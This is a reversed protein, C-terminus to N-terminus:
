PGQSATVGNDGSAPPLRPAPPSPQGRTRLAAGHPRPYPRQQAAGPRSRSRPRPRPRPRYRPEGQGGLLRRQGTPRQRLEDREEQRLEGNAGGAALLLELDQAQHGFAGEPGDQFHQVAPPLLDAGDLDHGFHLHQAAVGQLLALFFDADLSLDPVRKDVAQPVAPLALAVEEDHAGVAAGPVQVRQPAGGPAEGLGGDAQEGGLQHQHQHIEVVQTDHVSVHLHLVDEQILSPVEFEGVKAEGPVQPPALPGVGDAAGQLVHGWLHQAPAGVAVCGVPPGQSDQEEGQGTPLERHCRRPVM